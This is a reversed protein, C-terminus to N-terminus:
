ATCSKWTAAAPTPSPSCCPRLVSPCHKQDHSLWRHFQPWCSASRPSWCTWDRVPGPPRSSQNAGSQFILGAGRCGVGSVRCSVVSLQCGVVSLQCSIGVALGAVERPNAPYRPVFLRFEQDGRFRLAAEQALQPSLRCWDAAGVANGASVSRDSGYFITRRTRPAHRRGFGRVGPFM